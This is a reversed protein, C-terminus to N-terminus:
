RSSPRRTVAAIARDLELGVDEVLVALREDGAVDVLRRGPDGAQDDHRQEYRGRRRGARPVDLLTAHRRRVRARGAGVQAAVRAGVVDVVVCACERAARDAVVQVLARSSPSVRCCPQTSVWGQRSHAV